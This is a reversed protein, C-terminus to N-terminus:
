CQTSNTIYIVGLDAGVEGGCFFSERVFKWWFGVYWM